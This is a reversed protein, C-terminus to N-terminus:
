APILEPYVPEWMAQSVADYIANPEFSKGVNQEAADKVVACAIKRTIERLRHMRPFLAGQELDEDTLESALTHAAVTFMSDTVESAEAVLAGLGVGPFVYVNNGQGIRVTRGDPLTVPEFPSGTAVLARGDTWRLLDEPVAESKSTPNSFPLIAPADCHKAMERVIEESFVGPQGSTGILVTPKLAKVVELLEIPQAPDLGLERVLEEPWAFERKYEDRFDRSDVILGRSDLVAVARTLAAGSLGASELADRIQHGIGVGAAGAGLIVVRQDTLKANRKRVAAFIGAVAVAATGQIDDNFSCLRKRYKTLLTFANAKKFDEWQLLAKPFRTMVAEVFEEVLDYYRQGRLRPHRWGVYLENNLLEENDTGVDLSIPLTQNPHIGAGLTYLSLKGIPIGMGGAGQDGLGLIRENDTVVILRVDDTAANALVQEIRGSDEPTIWIGRGRRFIQSFFKCAEGVTPTYVIPMLEEVHEGLVRYFLTENRDQLAAMGIYRELPDAKRSINGYARAAQIAMPTPNQPLLGRLGFADREAETFATGKNLLPNCLLARGREHM